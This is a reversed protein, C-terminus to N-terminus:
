SELNSPPTITENMKKRLKRRIMIAMSLCVISVCITTVVTVKDMSPTQFSNSSSKYVGNPGMIVSENPKITITLGDSQAYNEPAYMLRATVPPVNYVGPNVVRAKYSFTTNGDLYNAALIMGTPTIDQEGFYNSMTQTQQANKLRGNIPIMGAPLHDELSLYNVPGALNSVILEVTVLDGVGFSNISGKESVYRRQIELGKSVPQSLIKTHLERTNLTSYLQGQGDFTIALKSGNTNISNLDISINKILQDASSVHGNKIQAGDLTVTYDFDPKLEQNNKTYAVLGKMVQISSFTTSWYTTKRSQLLYWVARAADDRYEEGGISLAQLALGTSSVTDGFDGALGPKWFAGNGQVTAREVLRDTLETGHGNKSNAIAAMALIDDGMSEQYKIREGNVKPELFSLAYIKLVQENVSTPSIQHYYNTVSQTIPANSKIGVQQGRGLTEAVYATVYNQTQSDRWWGWSGNELQLETLREIAKKTIDTMDYDDDKLASELVGADKAILAAMLKTATQESCGYPYGVLSELAGLVNGMLTPALSLTVTSQNLSSDNALKINFEGSGYKNDATDTYYGYPIIPLPVVIGDSFSANTTSKANITLEAKENALKPNVKWTFLKNQRPEITAQQPNNNVEVGTLSLSVSFPMKTDTYNHVYASLEITDESRIVNPIVPRVVVNKTVLIDNSAQGVLTDGTAGVAALSWTTLNDPLTFSISAKGNDDTKISPNWYAADKFISRGGDGKENHVWISDAIFTHYKLTELNYVDIAGLQWEISTIIVPQNNMDVLVDDVQANGIPQWMGNLYVKHEPTIHLTGNIVLTGPVEVQHINNVTTNILTPDVESTRTKISDGKKVDRITKTTGDAMLISTDGTFCGGGEAANATIGELSHATSTNNYRDYWFAEQIDGTNSAALEFLSKDVVWLTVESPKSNGFADKTDLSVNVTDGPGYTKRDPNISVKLQKHTPPIVIKVEDSQFNQNGFGSIAAYIDPTDSPELPIDITTKNNDLHVLYYRHVYARELTLLVDQNSTESIVTLKVTDVPLYKQKDLILSYDPKSESYYVQHDPAYIYLYFSNTIPNNKSDTTTLAIEYSGASQPTLNLATSGDRSTTITQNPLTDVKKDYRPYKENPLQVPEYWTRTIIADIKKGTVNAKGWARAIFQIQAAEGVPYSSQYDKKFLGFEGAYVLVNKRALSQNQTDDAVIVEVGVVQNKGKVASAPLTITAIGKDDLLVEGQSSSEGYYNGYQGYSSEANVRNEFESDYSYNWYDATTVAYKVNVNALPQGYFYSGSVVFKMEEGSIYTTKDTKIEVFYDPKRYSEVQFETSSQNTFDYEATGPFSIQVSYYGPNATEPIKCQGDVSGTDSITITETCIKPASNGYGNTVVAIITGDPITYTADNDNRMISKYYVTDGPQYLPRDTFTFFRRSLQRSTFEKYSYGSNLYKLNIPLLATYGGSEILAIDAESMIRNRAVGDGNITATAIESPQNELNFFRVTGDTIARKNEFSRTWVLFDSESNKIISGIESRVVVGYETVNGLTMKVIYIGNKELPLTMLQQENSSKVSYKTKILQPLGSIDVQQTQQGKGDHTLYKLLLDTNAQYLEVDAEGSANWSSIGITPEDSSALTIVGGSMYGKKDSIYLYKQTEHSPGGFM